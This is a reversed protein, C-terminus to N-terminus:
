FWSFEIVQALLIVSIVQFMQDLLIPQCSALINTQNHSSMSM